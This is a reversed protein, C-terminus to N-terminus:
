KTELCEICNVISWLEPHKAVNARQDGSTRSGCNKIGRSDCAHVTGPNTMQGNTM